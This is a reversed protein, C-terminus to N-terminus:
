GSSGRSGGSTGTPSASHLEVELPHGFVDAARVRFLQEVANGHVALAHFRGCQVQHFTFEVAATDYELAYAMLGALFGDVTSRRLKGVRELRWLANSLEIQFHPPLVAGHVNIHVEAQDTMATAQSRACWAIAVSADVVLRTM